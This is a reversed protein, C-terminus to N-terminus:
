RIIANLSDLKYTDERYMDIFKQEVSDTEFLGDEFDDISANAYEAHFELMGNACDLAKHLRVNEKFTEHEYYYTSAVGILIGLVVMVLTEYVQKM